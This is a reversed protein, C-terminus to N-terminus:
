LWRLSAVTMEEAPRSSTANVYTKGSAAKCSPDTYNGSNDKLCDSYFATWATGDPGITNGFFDNASGIGSSGGGIMPRSAPNIMASYFVPNSTVAGRSNMLQHAAVIYADSGGDSRRDLLFSFTVEGPRYGVSFPWQIGTDINRTGARVEPPTMNFPGKWTKGHDTSIRLDEDRGSATLLYLNGAGDVRLSNTSVSVPLTAVVPWTSAEDSSRLLNTGCAAWLSGDPGGQPYPGVGGVGSAQSCSAAFDSAPLWSAGGDFSRYCVRQEPQPGPGDACWYSMRGASPAKAQGAPAPASTFHPNEALTGAMVTPGNWQQYGPYSASMVASEMGPLTATPGPPLPSPDATGYINSYFLRGSVPDIYLNDDCCSFKRGAIKSFTWTAGNDTSVAMGSANAGAEQRSPVATGTQNVGGVAGPDVYGLGPQTTMAPTVYLTGNPAVQIQSEAAGYGTAVACPVVSDSTAAIAGDSYFAEAPHGTDCGLLSGTAAGGHSTASYAAPAAFLAAVVAVGLLRWLRLDSVRNFRGLHGVSLEPCVVVVVTRAALDGRM